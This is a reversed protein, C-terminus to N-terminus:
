WVAYVLVLGSIVMCTLAVSLLIDALFELRGALAPNQTRLAIFTAYTCILFLVSSLALGDDAITAVRASSPVSHLLTIGTICLGALTGSLSLLHLLEERLWRRSAQGARADRRKLGLGM